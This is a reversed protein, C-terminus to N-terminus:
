SMWMPKLTAAKCSSGTGDVPNRDAATLCRNHAGGPGKPPSLVIQFDDRALIAFYPGSQAFVHFGLHATYFAVAADVDSVIYRVMLTNLKM